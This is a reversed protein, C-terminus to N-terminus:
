PHTQSRSNSKLGIESKVQNKNLGLNHQKPVSTTRLSLNSQMCLGTCSISPNHKNIKQQLKISMHVYCYTKWIRTSEMKNM